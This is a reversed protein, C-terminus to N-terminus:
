VSEVELISGLAALVVDVREQQHLPFALLEVIVIRVRRGVLDQHVFLEEQLGQVEGFIDRLLPDLLDYEVFDILLRGTLISFM